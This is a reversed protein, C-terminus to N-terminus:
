SASNLTLVFHIGRKVIPNLAALKSVFTAAEPLRIKGKETYNQKLISRFIMRDIFADIQFELKHLLSLRCIFGFCHYSVSPVPMRKFSLPFERYFILLEGTCHFRCFAGTTILPASGEIRSVLATVYSKCHTSHNGFCSPIQVLIFISNFSLLM